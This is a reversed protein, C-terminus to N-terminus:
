IPLKSCNDAVPAEPMDQGLWLAKKFCLPFMHLLSAYLNCISAPPSVMAKVQGSLYTLLVYCSQTLKEMSVQM